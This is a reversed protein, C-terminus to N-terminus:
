TTESYYCASLDLHALEDRAVWNESVRLMEEQGVLNTLLDQSAIGQNLVMRMLNFDRAEQAVVFLAWQQNPMVKALDYQRTSVVGEMLVASNEQRNESPIPVLLPSSPTRQGSPFLNWASAALPPRTTGFREIPAPLPTSMNSALALSAALLNVDRPSVGQDLDLPGHLPLSRGIDPLPPLSSELETFNNRAQQASPSTRSSNSNDLENNPQSTKAM